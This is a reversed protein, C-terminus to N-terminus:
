QNMEKLIDFNIFYGLICRYTKYGRVMGRHFKNIKKQWKTM